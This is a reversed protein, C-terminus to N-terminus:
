RGRLALMSRQGFYFSIIGAFIAQDEETWLNDAFEIKLFAYLFFFSYAIVPRVTGNLADVWKIQTKYTSYLQKSEAIDAQVNIAELKQNFATQERGIQLKLIELEHKKDQRDQFIKVVDPIISSLFGILSGLLTIM